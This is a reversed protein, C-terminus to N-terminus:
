RFEDFDTDAANQPNRNPLCKPCGSCLVCPLYPRCDPCEPCNCKKDCYLACGKTCPWDKGGCSYCWHRGCCSGHAGIDHCGHLRYHAVPKGCWPCKKFLSSPLAEDASPQQTMIQKRFQWLDIERDRELAVSPFYEVVYILAGSFIGYNQLTQFHNLICGQFIFFPLEKVAPDTSTPSDLYLNRKAHLIWDTTATPLDSVVRGGGSCLLVRVFPPQPGFVPIKTRQLGVTRVISQFSIDRDPQLANCRCLLAAQHCQVCSCVHCYPCCM